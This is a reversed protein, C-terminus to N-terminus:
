RPVTNNDENYKYNIVKQPLLDQKKKEFNIHYNEAREIGNVKKREYQSFNNIKRGNSVPRRNTNITQTNKNIEPPKYSENTSTSISM